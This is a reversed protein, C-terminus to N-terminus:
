EGFAKLADTMEYTYLDKNSAIIEKYMEAPDTFGKSYGWGNINTKGLKLGQTNTILIEGTPLKYLGDYSIVYYIPKPDFKGSKSSITAKVVVYYKNNKSFDSGQNKAVLLYEGLGNVDSVEYGYYNYDWDSRAYNDIIEGAYVYQANRFDISLDNFSLIDKREAYVEFGDGSVNNYDARYEETLSAYCTYPNVYGRTSYGNGDLNSHGEIDSSRDATIEGDSVLINSLQIPFYVTAPRFKNETNSVNGSFILHLRNYRSNNEDKAVNMIYGVYKLDTLSSTNDYSRAAYASIQDEIEKKHYNLFDETLSDFSKVYEPLGSVTYEKTTDAPLKGYQEAYSALDYVNVTVKVTDGNKLGYSKDCSFDWSSFDSGEYIINASGDPSVGDFTVTVDAFPDFKAVKELGTVKYDGDKYKVKITLYDSIDDEVDWKYNIVDDNSLKKNKDLNVDVALKLIETGSYKKIIETYGEDEAEKKGKSTLKIKDGYKEDIADWDITVAATGYGDYGTAEVTVFKNLNITRSINNAICIIAILAALAVGGIVALKVPFPKKPGTPAAPKVPTVPTIPTASAAPEEPAAPTAPAAPAAEFKAGCTPCFKSDDPIMSGCEKCYM